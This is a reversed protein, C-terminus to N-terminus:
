LTELGVKHLAYKLIKFKKILNLFKVYVFHENFKFDENINSNEDEGLVVKGIDKICNTNKSIRRKISENKYIKM